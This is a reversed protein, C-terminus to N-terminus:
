SSCVAPNNQDQNKLQDRDGSPSGSSDGMFDSESLGRAIERVPGCNTRMRIGTITQLAAREKDTGDSVDSVASQRERFFFGDELEPNKQGGLLDLEFCSLGTSRM